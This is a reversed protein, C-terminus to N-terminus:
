DLFVTIVHLGVGKNGSATWGQEQGHHLYTIVNSGAELIVSMLAQEVGNDFGHVSAEQSQITAPILADPLPGATFGTANSEGALPPLFILAYHDCPFMKYTATGVTDVAFGTAVLQFSGSQTTCDPTASKPTSAPAQAQAATQAVPTVTVGEACASLCVSLVGLCFLKRLIV